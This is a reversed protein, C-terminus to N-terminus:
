GDLPRVMTIEDPEDGPEDVHVFGTRLYLRIAHENKRRVSLRVAVAGEGRAWRAVADVLADAVGTGRREPVVWMSILEVRRDENALIGSAQGVPVEGAFAVVNLPVEELRQRWRREDATEWEALSSGFSEPADALARLRLDRWLRWADPDVARVDGM